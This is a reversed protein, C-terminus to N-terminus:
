INSIHVVKELSLGHLVYMNQFLFYM